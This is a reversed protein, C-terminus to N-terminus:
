PTVASGKLEGILLTLMRSYLADAAKFKDAYAAASMKQKAPNGDFITQNVVREYMVDVAESSKARLGDATLDQCFIRSEPTSSQQLATYVDAYERKAVQARLVSPSAYRGSVVLLQVDPFLMAAIFRDPGDPDQTGVATLTQSAMLSTLERALPASQSDQASLMAPISMAILLTFAASGIVKM